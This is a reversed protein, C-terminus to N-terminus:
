FVEFLTIIGRKIFSQERRYQDLGKYFLSGERFNREYHARNMNQSSLLTELPM